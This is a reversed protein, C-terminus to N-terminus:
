KVAVQFPRVKGDTIFGTLYPALFGGINAAGNTIGMLTGAYNPSLEVHNVQCNCHSKSNKIPLSHRVGFGSYIAGNLMVAMCLWFVALTQDCGTFALGILSVGPGGHAIVNMGKRIVTLSLGFPKARIIKDTLFGCTLAFVWM